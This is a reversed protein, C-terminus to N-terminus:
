HGESVQSTSTSLGLQNAVTAYEHTLQQRLHTVANHTNTRIDPTNHLTHHVHDLVTTTTLTDTRILSREDNISLAFDRCKPQYELSIVPTASLAALIGAHLRSVIALSCRALEHAAANADPPHVIEAGTGTLAQETWRRDARNMLIGVFRYGHSALQQTAGAIQSAVAAPDRGWLDDDGFGLNLGILGEQATVDPRPLLLAPDGSVEVDLGADALLQASRPGRVSVTQFESLIPVWRKLEGKGSGSRRGVFVPDEVGVGIAYSGNRRTLAQGRTVLRRWHSRGILTGGGVVQTSHRLSRNLGTAAAHIRERPFRPLDLVTAGPLQSRVADYIADDGINGMRQWGLYAVLADTSHTM